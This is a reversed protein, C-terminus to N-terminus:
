LYCLNSVPCKGIGAVDEGVDEEHRRIIPWSLTVPSAVSITVSGLMVAVLLISLKMKELFLWSQLGTVFTATM